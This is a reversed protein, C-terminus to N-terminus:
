LKSKLHKLVLNISRYIDFVSNITGIPDKEYSEKTFQELQSYVPEYGTFENKHINHPKIQWFKYIDDLVAM